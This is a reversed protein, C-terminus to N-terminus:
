ILLINLRKKQQHQDTFKKKELPTSFTRQEININDNLEKLQNFSEDSLFNDIILHPYPKYKWSNKYM